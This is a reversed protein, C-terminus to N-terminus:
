RTARSRRSRPGAKEEVEGMWARPVPRWHFGGIRRAREMALPRAADWLEDSLPTASVEEAEPRRVVAAEIRAVKLDALVRAQRERAHQLDRELAQVESELVVRRQRFDQEQEELRSELDQGQFHRRLALATEVRVQELREMEEEKAAKRAELATVRAAITDMERELRDVKEAAPEVVEELITRARDYDGQPVAALTLMLEFLM